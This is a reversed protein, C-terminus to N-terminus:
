KLHMISKKVVDKAFVAWERLSLKASRIGKVFGFLNKNWLAVKAIQLANNTYIERQQEVSLGSILPEFKQLFLQKTDVIRQYSPINSRDDINLITLHENLLTVNYREFFRIMFEIDQNRRFREDFGGLESFAHKYIIIVSSYISEKLALLEFLYNNKQRPKQRDVEQGQKRRKALCICAQKSANDQSEKRLLGVQRLIRDPDCEDDDDLFAIFEGKAHKAGANRAASGGRNEDQVLYDIPFRCAISDVVKATELQQLQGKGNDDVIIIEIKDYTQSSVSEVCRELFQSRGFTPIVVSVLDERM